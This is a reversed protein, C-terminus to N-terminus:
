GHFRGCCGTRVIVANLPQGVIGMLRLRRLVLVQVHVMMVMVVALRMMLVAMVIVPVRVVMMLRVMMLMGMPMMTLSDKLRAASTCSSNIPDKSSNFNIRAQM